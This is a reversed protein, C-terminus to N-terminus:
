NKKVQPTNFQICTIHTWLVIPVSSSSLGSRLSNSSITVVDPTGGSEVMWLRHEPTAALPERCADGFVVGWGVGGPVGLEIRLSAFSACCPSYQLPMVMLYVMFSTVRSPPSNSSTHCHTIYPSPPPNLTTVNRLASVHTNPTVLYGHIGYVPHAQFEHSMVM